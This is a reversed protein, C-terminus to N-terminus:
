ANEKYITPDIIGAEQMAERREICTACTGCQVDGGEYCSWTESYDIGLRKGHAAIAGKSIDTYPAEISVHNSTGEYVASHM